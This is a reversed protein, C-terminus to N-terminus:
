DYISKYLTKVKQATDFIINANEEGTMKMEIVINKQYNIVKLADFLKQVAVFNSLPQLNLDSVHVHELLDQISAITETINENNIVSIGLDYHLRIAPHSLKRVFIAAQDTNTLFNCGYIVPNPEVVVVVNNNQAIDGLNRFFNIAVDEAVADTMGPPVIRNKPSGFVLQTVGLKKALVCVIELYNLMSQPDEFLQLQPQGFLLSQMSGVSLGSQMCLKVYDRVEQDTYSFIDNIVRLPAVEITDFKLTGLGMLVISDENKLWGINSIGLKM